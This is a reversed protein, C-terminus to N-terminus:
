KSATSTQSADHETNRTFNYTMHVRPLAHEPGAPPYTRTTFPTFGILPSTM